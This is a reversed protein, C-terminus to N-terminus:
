GGAPAAKKTARMFVQSNGYWGMFRFPSFHLVEVDWGADEIKKIAQRFDFGRHSTKVDEARRAPVGLLAAKLLELVRYGNNKRRIVLRNFEKLLLAPGIEIPGSIVVCGDDTLMQASRDLFELIEDDWLHEITEFLTVTAYPAHARMSDFEKFIPLGEATRSEMYPEYGFATEPKMKNVENIFVGSGCGYDLIRGEPIREEAIRIANKVRTQHAYRALPNVSNITNADYNPM